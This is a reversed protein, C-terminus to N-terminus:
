VPLTHCASRFVIPTGACASYFITTRLHKFRDFDERRRCVAADDQRSTVGQPSEKVSETTPILEYSPCGTRRHLGDRILRPPRSPWGTPPHQSTSYVRVDRLTQSDIRLTHGASRFEIPTGACASHQPEDIISDTSIIEAGACRQTM